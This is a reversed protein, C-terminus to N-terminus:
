CRIFAILDANLRAAHTLMLGSPAGEYFILESGPILQATKEATQRVLASCM